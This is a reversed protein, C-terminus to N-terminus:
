VRRGTGRRRIYLSSGELQVERSSRENTFNFPECCRSYFTGRSGTRRSIVASVEVLRVPLSAGCLVSVERGRNSPICFCRKRTHLQFNDGAPQRHDFFRFSAETLCEDFIEAPVSSSRLRPIDM